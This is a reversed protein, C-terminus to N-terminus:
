DVSMTLDSASIRIYDDIMADRAVDLQWYAMVNGTTGISTDTLFIFGVEPPDTQFPGFLITADNEIESPDGVPDTWDVAQRSYGGPVPDVVENAAFDALSATDPSVPLATILALYMAQTAAVGLGVGAIVARNAGFRTLQGTM